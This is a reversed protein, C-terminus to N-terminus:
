FNLFNYAAKKWKRWLAVIKACVVNWMCLLLQRIQSVLRRLKRKECQSCLSSLYTQEVFLNDTASHPRTHPSTVNLTALLPRSLTLKSLFLSIVFRFTSMVALYFCDDSANGTSTAASTHLKITRKRARKSFEACGSRLERSLAPIYLTKHSQRRIASRATSGLENALGKAGAGCRDPSQRHPGQAWEGNGSM